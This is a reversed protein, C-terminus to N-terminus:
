DNIVNYTQKIESAYFANIDSSTILTNWVSKPVKIYIFDKKDVKMILFGTEGNCSYFRANMVGYSRSIKFQKQFRFKANEISEIAKALSVSSIDLSDCDTSQPSVPYNHEVQSYGTLCYMIALVIWFTRQLFWKKGFYDM